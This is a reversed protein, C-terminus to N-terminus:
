LATIKFMAFFMEKKKWWLEEEDTVASPAKTLRPPIDRSTAHSNVTICVVTCTCLWNAKWGGFGGGFFLKELSLFIPRFAHQASCFPFCLMGLGEGEYKGGRFHYPSFLSLHNLCTKRGDSAAAAAGAGNGM